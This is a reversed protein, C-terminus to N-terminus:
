SPSTNRLSFFFIHKEGKSKRAFSNNKDYAWSLSRSCLIIMSIIAISTAEAVLTHVDRVCCWTMCTESVLKDVSYVYTPRQCLMYVESVLPRQWLHIYVESVIHLVRIGHAESVLTHLDSVIHLDKVCTHRSLVCIYTESVIPRQCLHIYAESVIPPRQRPRQCLSLSLLPVCQTVESVTESVLTHLGGVCYTYGQYWYWLCVYQAETESVVLPRQRAKQCLSLSLPPPVCTAESAAESVLTHLCRVCYTPRQHWHDRDRVCYTGESAAESVFLSLSSPPCLIHGRVRDRVFLTWAWTSWVSM